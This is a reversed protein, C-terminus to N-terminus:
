VATPCRMSSRRARRDREERAKVVENRLVTNRARLDRLAAYARIVPLRRTWTLM